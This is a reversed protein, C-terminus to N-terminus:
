LGKTKVVSAVDWDKHIFPRIRFAIAANKITDGIRLPREEMPSGDPAYEIVTPFIKPGHMLEFYLDAKYNPQGKWLYLWFLFFWSLIFVVWKGWAPWKLVWWKFVHDNDSLNVEFTARGKGWKGFM